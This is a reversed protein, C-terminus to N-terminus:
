PASLRGDLKAKIKYLADFDPMATGQREILQVAFADWELGTPMSRLRKCLSDLEDVIWTNESPSHQSMLVNLLTQIRHVVLEQDDKQDSL